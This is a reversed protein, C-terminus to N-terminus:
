GESLINIREKIWNIFLLLLPIIHLFTIYFYNTDFPTMWRHFVYSPEFVIAVWLLFFGTITLLRSYNKVNFVTAVVRAVGYLFISMKYFGGLFIIVIGIIDINTLIGVDVVRIIRLLPIRTVSTYYDGLVSVDFFLTFSLLLGSLIIVLMATKRILKEEETYCWFMSCILIEGFPFIAVNPYATKLVPKIGNAMIPRINNFDAVGSLYILIFISLMFILIIPLTILSTRGLVEIGSLLVYLSLLIFLFLIAALSEEPLAVITILEGFERLNRAAPWLWYVAYLLALPIGFGRGLISIIIEIYNQEPFKRQLETYVWIFALGIILAVLIVLWADQKADIGLAFLTTSGIEFLFMLMFLEQISITTNEAGM